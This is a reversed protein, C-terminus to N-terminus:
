FRFDTGKVYLSPLPIRSTSVLASIYVLQSSTLQSTSYELNKVNATALLLIYGIATIFSSLALFIGRKRLRDSWWAVTFYVIAGWLYVVTLKSRTTPSGPITLYQAEVSGYGM